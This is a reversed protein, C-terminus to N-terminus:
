QLDIRSDNNINKKKNKIEFHSHSHKEFYSHADSYGKQYMKWALSPDRPRFGSLPEYPDKPHISATTDVASATITNTSLTPKNNSFSGDLCLRGRYKVMQTSYFPIFFSGLMISQLHSNNEFENVLQYSKPPFHSVCLHLRRQAKRYVNPRKNFSYEIAENQWKSMKFMPGTRSARANSALRDYSQKVEQWPIDCAAAVAPICGSSAGLFQWQSLDFGSDDQLYRLIGIHYVVNWSGGAFSMEM